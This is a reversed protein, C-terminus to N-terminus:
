PGGRVLRVYYPNTKAFASDNSVNFDVNWASTPTSVYPSATWYIGSVTAPFVTTNISPTFCRDETIMLLEKVNPLRWDTYTAFGGGGNLAEVLQLAAQWTHTTAAGTACGAGSLGESCQKWMLGSRTHTVTGDGNDVFDSTPTSATITGLCTALAANSGICLLAISVLVLSMAHASRGTSQSLENQLGEPKNM